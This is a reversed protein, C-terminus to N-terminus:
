SASRVWDPLLRRLRHRADHLRRRVTGPPCALLEAMRQDDLDCYYRLVIAARQRPTLQDLAAWIARKTEAAPWCRKPAKRM